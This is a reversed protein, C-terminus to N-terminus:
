GQFPTKQSEKLKMSELLKKTERRFHRETWGITTKIDYKDYLKPFSVKTKFKEEAASQLIIEIDELSNPNNLHREERGIALFDYKLFDNQQIIQCEIVNERDFHTEGSRTVIEKLYRLNPDIQSMGIAFTCSAFNTLNLSGSLDNETLPVFPNTKKTHALVLISVGHKKKIGVLQKMIKSAVQPDSQNQMTIWTINDLVIVELDYARIANEISVLIMKEMPADFDLFDEDMTISHFNENFQYSSKGLESESSYRQYLESDSLEFDFYGLKKPECENTLIGPMVDEGRTIANAAQVALITKGRKPGAFLICIESEKWLSGMMHRLKPAKQGIEMREKMTQVKLLSNNPMVRLDDSLDNRLEFVDDIGEYFKTLNKACLEIGQRYLYQQIVIRSHYLINTAVGSIVKNTTAVIGFGGGVAELKRQNKCEQTVTIIDIPINRDHMEELVEYIIGIKEDYFHEKKLTGKVELLLDPTMLIAGVVATEVETAQPVPKNFIYDRLGQLYKLYDASVPIQKAAVALNSM